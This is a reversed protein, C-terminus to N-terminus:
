SQLTCSFFNDSDSTPTRLQADICIKFFKRYPELMPTLLETHLPVTCSESLDGVGLKRILSWSPRVLLNHEGSQKAIIRSANGFPERVDIRRIGNHLLTVWANSFSSVILRGDHEQHQQGQLSWSRAPVQICRAPERRAHAVSSTKPHKSEKKTMKRTYLQM